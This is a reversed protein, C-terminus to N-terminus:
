IEATLVVVRGRALLVSPIFKLHLAYESTRVYLAGM